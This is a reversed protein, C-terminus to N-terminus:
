SAEAGTSPQPADPFFASVTTGRNPVSEAKVRGRHAEVLHKVIALGLGTGSGDGAGGRARSPDARYFREFIRPLHEPAIGVGTDRVSINAGGPAPETVTSVVGGSATYRLANTVLNLLVQHLAMPDAYLTRANAHVRCELAVSKERATTHVSAIVERAVAAVDVAQPRPLWGGSEIRSLDLLDDVLRQMRRGNNLVADIFRARDATSLADDSALIEASGTLATLPTRLEHSVNAVFDRRVAELKRFPTVDLVALVAGGRPAGSATALPRATMALSRQGFAAEVPPAPEGALAADLTARLARDRPLESAPFPTQSRLGLLERAAPNVRVVRGRADVAIVGEDLSSLMANLLAENAHLAGLRAQLQEAMADLATALEGLEGSLDQRPRRSLDGGALGRALDRLEIVPRSVGRAFFWTLLLALAFAVVGATFVDREAGGIIANLATTTMSLRAVGRPARVAVYLEQDGASPSARRSWGTGRARAAIVEPRTSHNQLQYLEPPDFESDGEVHGASDILTVRRQLLAGAANALSDTSVGPQWETAVLRAERTLAAVSEDLLSHQLRRDALWVSVVVLVLVIALFGAFVRRALTM